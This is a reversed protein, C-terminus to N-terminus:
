LYPRRMQKKTEWSAVHTADVVTARPFDIAKSLMFLYGVRLMHHVSRSARVFFNARTGAVHMCSAIDEDGFSSPDITHEIGRAQSRYERYDHCTIHLPLALIRRALYRVQV